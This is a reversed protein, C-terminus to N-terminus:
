GDSELVVVGEIEVLLDPRCLDARVYEVRADPDVFRRLREAIDGETAPDVVYVRLDGYRRMLSRVEEPQLHACPTGEAARVVAALNYFTEDLQRRLDDRHFSEEGRVSATGGVLLHLGETPNPWLTARAFCPPLHGYKESYRYAPRQRPNEVARGGRISALCHIDLHRGAHGVGSATAVQEPLAEDGHWARLARYRGANFAMYRHEHPGLPELIGPIFNWLRVPRLEQWSRRTLDGIIRRYIDFCAEEFAEADLSAADRLRFSLLVTGALPDIASRCELQGRTISDDHKSRPVTRRVWEPLAVSPTLVHHPNSM